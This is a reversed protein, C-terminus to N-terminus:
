TFTHNENETVIIDMRVDFDDEKFEELMWSYALGVKLVHKNALYRDYYGGGYGIRYGKNNFALLPVVVVDPIIETSNRSEILGMKTTMSNEPEYVNMTMLKNKTNPICVTKNNDLLWSILLRTNIEDKISVYTSINKYDSLIPKLRELIKQDYLAKLSDPFVRRQQLKVERLHKKDM